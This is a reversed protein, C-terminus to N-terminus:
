MVSTVQGFGEIFMSHHIHKAQFPSRMVDQMEHKAKLIINSQSIRYRLDFRYIDVANYKTKKKACITYKTINVNNFTITKNLKM